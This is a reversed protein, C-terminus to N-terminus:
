QYFPDTLPNKIRTNEAYEDTWGKKYESYYVYISTDKHTNLDKYILTASRPESSSGGGFHFINNSYRTTKTIKLNSYDINYKNHLYILPEIKISLFYYYITILGSLLIIPLTVKLIKQNNKIKRKSFLYFLLSLCFIILTYKIYVTDVGFFLEVYAWVMVFLFFPIFFIGLM